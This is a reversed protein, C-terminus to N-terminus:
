RRAETGREDAGYGLKTQVALLSKRLRPAAFELFRRMKLPLLGQQAHVLHVPIPPPEFDRLVIRLKKEAVARAAQYSFVNTVGVGAIAADVAAEATNVHLRWPPTVSTPRRGPSTFAWATGAAQASFAVCQHAALEDPTRPEGRAALYAPSACVVRRISGVRTAILTSDPLAGIRVALDIHDEILNM